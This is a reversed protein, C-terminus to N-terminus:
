RPKQWWVGTWDIEHIPAAIQQIARYDTVAARCAAVAGYDDVIVFGGPALRPYLHELAVITSGYMDGDLRVLALQGSPLEPLTEHFWGEVFCVQEDLLGYKNFNCKVQDVPVALARMTHWTAGADLPHRQADPPPLGDFSDAVFVRRGTVGNAALVGRMLICCGGRWVGAEILDGPVAEDIVRQTLERVNALRLLGVMTHAPSTADRGAPADPRFLGDNWPDVPESGYILNSVSKMLLDLYLERPEQKM